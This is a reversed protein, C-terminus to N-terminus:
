YIRHNPLKKKIDGKEDFELIIDATLFGDKIMRDLLFLEKSNKFSKALLILDEIKISKTAIKLNDISFENFILPKLSINTKIEKIEFKKGELSVTPNKTIINITFNYPDLLFKIEKLDLKIKKNFKSIEDTIKENFKGTKVGIVSLYFIILVTLLLIISLIKILKKIM